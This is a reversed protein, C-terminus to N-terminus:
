GGPNSTASPPRPPRPGPQSGAENATKSSVIFLPRGRTNQLCLWLYQGVIGLGASTLGGFFLITLVTASYGPVGIGGSIKGILVTVGGLVALAMGGVGVALLARIPLDTFSFVSNVLYRMKKGFTWASTGHERQRRAYPVFARKYGVWFLLAPLSTEVEKMSCIQDRVKRTCGFVDVGGSPIDPNVLRRYLGWFARSALKSLAPDERGTRQGFVVEAAGSRMRELFELALEPPEQLDAALMVCYDGAAHALGATIAAFSGFNRSLRLLQARLTWERLKREVIAGCQDPSGDDVFVVEVAVPSLGAVRELESFLLPLNAESKYLPVIISLTEANVRAGSGSQAAGAPLPKKWNEAM